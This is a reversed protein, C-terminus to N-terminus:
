PFIYKLTFTMECVFNVKEDGDGVTFVLWSMVLYRLKLSKKLKLASGRVNKLRDKINLRVYKLLHM